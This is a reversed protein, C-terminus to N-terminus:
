DRNAKPALLTERGVLYLFVCLVLFLVMSLADAYSGNFLPNHETAWSNLRKDVPALWDAGQLIAIVIGALTGGAIYGSAM